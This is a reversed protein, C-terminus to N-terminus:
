TGTRTRTAPSSPSRRGEPARGHLCPPSGATIKLLEAVKSYHVAEPLQIRRRGDVRDRVTVVRGLVECGKLFRDPTLSATPRLGTLNVFDIALSSSRALRGGRPINYFRLIVLGQYKGPETIQFRVFWVKRGYAKGDEHEMYVMRYRGEPVLTEMPDRSM